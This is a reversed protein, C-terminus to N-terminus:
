QEAEKDFYNEAQRNFMEAYVGDPKALLEKHSGCQVMAGKEMVLVTDALVASSLRHSIFLVTKGKTVRLMSEFVNYEAIPDLASSPEDLIAVPANKAFVAALQVKQTEGGSLVAGNPDFERTLTTDIGQELTAIKDFVGSERLANEVTERDNENMPGQMVNEGVTMSLCKYDQFMVSFLTRYSSLRLTRIDVGDLTIRGDTPDYLRLLLKVVTTKGAGNCGVLAFRKGPELTFSVNKLVPETAGVYTFSVNEFAIVGKKAEPASPDEKIKPDYDM